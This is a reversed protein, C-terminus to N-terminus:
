PQLSKQIQSFLLLGENLRSYLARSLGPDNESPLAILPFACFFRNHPFQDLLYPYTSLANLAQGAFGTPWPPSEPNQLLAEFTERPSHLRPLALNLRTKPDQILALLAPQANAWNRLLLLAYEESRHNLVATQIAPLFPLLARDTLLNDLSTKEGALAPLWDKPHAIGILQELVKISDPQPGDAQISIGTLSLENLDPKFSTQISTKSVLGLYKTSELRFTKRLMAGATQVQVSGALSHALRLAIDKVRQSKDKLALQLLPEDDADLTPEIALLCDAKTAASQENWATLLWQHAQAPACTRLHTLYSVTERTGADPEPPTLSPILHCWQAHQGALWTGRAGLVPLYDARWWAKQTVAWQLLDPLLAPHVRQQKRVLGKLTYEVLAPFRHDLAFGLLRNTENSALPLTEAQIEPDKVTWKAPRRAAQGFAIALAATKWVGLGPDPQMLADMHSRLPVALADPQVPAQNQGMLISRYLSPSIM